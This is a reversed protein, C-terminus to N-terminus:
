TSQRGQSQGCATSASITENASRRCSFGAGGAGKDQREARWPGERSRMTSSSLMVRVEVATSPETPRVTLSPLSHVLVGADPRPSPRLGPSPAAPACAREQTGAVRCEGAPLVQAGRVSLSSEDKVAVCRQIACDNTTDSSHPVEHFTPHLSLALLPAPDAPLCIFLRSGPSARAGKAAVLPLRMRRWGHKGHRQGRQACAGADDPGDKGM